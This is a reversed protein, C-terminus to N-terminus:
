VVITTCIGWNKQFYQVVITTQARRDDHFDGLFVVEQGSLAGFVHLESWMPETLVVITTHNISGPGLAGIIAM